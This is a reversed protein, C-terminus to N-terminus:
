MSMEPDKRVLLLNFSRGSAPYDQIEVEEEASSAAQEQERTGQQSDKAGGRM